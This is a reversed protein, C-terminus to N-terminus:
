FVAYSIRMLSQLESTHEDSRRKVASHFLSSIMNAIQGDGRMRTGFRSDNLTGQHCQSILHLVKQARDPFNKVIWDEFIQGIAGNLRVLTYGAVRAGAAAAAENLRPIEESNLGPISPATMVCWPIGQECLMRM